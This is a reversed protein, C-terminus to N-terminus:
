KINTFGFMKVRHSFFLEEPDKEKMQKDKQERILPNGKIVGFQSTDGHEDLFSCNSM